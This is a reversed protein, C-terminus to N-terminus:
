GNIAAKRISRGISTITVRSRSVTNAIHSRAASSTQLERWQHETAQCEAAHQRLMAGDANKIEREVDEIFEIQGAM